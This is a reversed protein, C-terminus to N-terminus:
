LLSRTYAFAVLQEVFGENCLIVPRLHFCHQVADILRVHNKVMYYAVVLAASRNIGAACHVLARRDQSAIRDLFELTEQFHLGLLDYSPLDEAQFSIYDVSGDYFEESTLVSSSACNVIADIGCASLLDTNMAADMDGLFVHAMIHAPASLLESATNRSRVLEVISQAYLRSKPCLTTSPTIPLMSGPSVVSRSDVAGNKHLCCDGGDQSLFLNLPPLSAMLARMRKRNGACRSM